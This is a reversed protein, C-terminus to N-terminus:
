SQGGGSSPTEANLLKVSNGSAPKLVKAIYKIRLGDATTYQYSAKVTARDIQIGPCSTDIPLCKFCHEGSVVGNTDEFTPSKSKEVWEEWEFTYTTAASISDKVEGGEIKAEIDSGESPSLTTTGDKPTPITTWTASTGPAGNVSPTTTLVCQGINIIM